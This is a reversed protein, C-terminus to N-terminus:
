LGSSVLEEAIWDEAIRFARPDDVDLWSASSCDVAIALGRDALLQMGDSLSPRPLMALTEFLSRGVNFVGTDYADFNPILKGIALIREGETAVRTVDEEDVWPHGLRRDIGLLTAGTPTMATAVRRYLAPEVLHDCMVLLARERIDPAAALVSVGNPADWNRNIVTRIRCRTEMEDLVSAVSTAQYGLVVIAEDIGAASLRDLVHAILPRDAIRALPKIPSIGRLRTGTGAALIVAQM